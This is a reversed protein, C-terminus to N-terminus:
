SDLFEEWDVGSAFGGFVTIEKCNPCKGKSANLLQQEKTTLSLTNLLKHYRESCNHCYILSCWQCEEAESNVNILQLFSKETKCKQLNQKSTCIFCAMKAATSSLLIPCLNNVL